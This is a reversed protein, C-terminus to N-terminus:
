DPVAPQPLYYQVPLLLKYNTAQGTYLSLILDVQVLLLKLYLKSTKHYV